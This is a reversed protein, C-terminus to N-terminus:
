ELCPVCLKLVARVFASFIHVCTSSTYMLSCVCSVCLISQMKFLKPAGNFRHEPFFMKHFDPYSHVFIYALSWNNTLQVCEACAYNLEIAM